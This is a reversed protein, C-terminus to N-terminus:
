PRGFFPSIMLNGKVNNISPPLMFTSTTISFLSYPDRSMDKQVFQKIKKAMIYYHLAGNGQSVQRKKM